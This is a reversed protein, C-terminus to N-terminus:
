RNRIRVLNELKKRLRGLRPRKKGFPDKETSVKIIRFYKKPYEDDIIDWYEGEENVLFVDGLGHNPNYYGIRYRNGM